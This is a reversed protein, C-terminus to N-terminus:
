EIPFKLLLNSINLSNTLMFHQYQYEFPILRHKLDFSEPLYARKIQPALICKVYFKYAKPAKHKYTPNTHIVM